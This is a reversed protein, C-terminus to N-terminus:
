AGSEERRRRSALWYFVIGVLMLGLAGGVVKAFFWLPRATDGPLSALVISIGTTAMGAVVVFGLGPKGGPITFQSAASPVRRRIVPIALFLYLYPIFYVIITTQVLVLYAEEVTAGLAGMLIFITAGVGQVLLAVYPTRWRPHVRGLAALLYRDLGM